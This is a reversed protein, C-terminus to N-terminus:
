YNGDKRGWSWKKRPDRHSPATPLACDERAPVTRLWWQNRCHSLHARTPEKGSDRGLDKTLSADRQSSAEPNGQLGLNRATEKVRGKEKM